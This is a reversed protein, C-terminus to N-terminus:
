WEKSLTIKLDVLQQFFELITDVPCAQNYKSLYMSAEMPNKTVIKGGPNDSTFITFGFIKDYYAVTRLDGGREQLNEYLVLRKCSFFTEESQIYIDKLEIIWRQM